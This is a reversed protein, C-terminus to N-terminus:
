PKTTPIPLIIIKVRKGDNSFSLALVRVLEMLTGIRYVNHQPEAKAIMLMVLQRLITWWWMSYAKEDTVFGGHGIFDFMLAEIVFGFPLDLMQQQLSLTHQGNLGSEEQEGLGIFMMKWPVRSIM